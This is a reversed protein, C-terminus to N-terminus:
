DRVEKGTLTLFVEDLSPERLTLGRVEVQHEALVALLSPLVTGRDSGSDGGLALRLSESQAQVEAVGPLQRLRALV